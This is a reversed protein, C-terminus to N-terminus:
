IDEEWPNVLPAGDIHAAIANAAALVGEAYANYRGNLEVMGFTGARFQMQPLLEAWPIAGWFMPLHLDGQGMAVQDGPDGLGTDGPPRGFNDHLHLHWVHPSLTAIAPIFDFGLTTASLWAHGFDLCAGVRPHDTEALQAALAQPDAGYPMRHPNAGHAILNEVSLNVDAKEALDGLRKLLDREEALLADRDYIWETLSVNGSHMVMSKCGTIRCFEISAEAAGVHMDRRDRDMLNIGHPAHLVPAMGHRDIMAAVRKTAPMNLKGGLVVDLRRASIEVHSCEIEAWHAMLRDAGDLDGPAVSTLNLGTGAILKM